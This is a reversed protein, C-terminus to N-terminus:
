SQTGAPGQACGLGKGLNHLGTQGRLNKQGARWEGNRMREEGQGDMWGDMQETGDLLHM